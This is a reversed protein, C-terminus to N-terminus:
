SFHRTKLTNLAEELALFGSREDNLIQKKLDVLREAMNANRMMWQLAQERLMFEFWQVEQQKRLHHLQQQKELHLFFKNIQEYIADFGRDEISSAVIVQVSFGEMRNQFLGMASRYARSTSQALDFQVGDAKNVVILDTMELIGRKIGQIDDGAGPQVLLLTMDTITSSMSESQGVGVTEVLVCDYGAKECLFISEKTGQAVGGLMAGASSPRIFARPDTSLVEMRTKDGMISGHSLQSSPDIALVATKHGKNLIYKGFHEIFTSKGAGPAGTITIRKTKDNGPSQALLHLMKYAKSRALENQSESLTIAYSLANRDGALIAEVCSATSYEGRPTKRYSPNFGTQPM